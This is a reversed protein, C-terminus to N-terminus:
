VRTLTLTAWDGIDERNQLKFGEVRYAALVTDAQEVL